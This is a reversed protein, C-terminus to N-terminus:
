KIIVYKFYYVKGKGITYKVYKENQRLGQKTNEEITVRSKIEYIKRGRFLTEIRAEKKRRNNCGAWM